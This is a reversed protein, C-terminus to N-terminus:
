GVSAHTGGGGLLQECVSSRQRVFASQQSGLSAADVVAAARGRDNVLTAVRLSASVRSTAASFICAVCTSTSRCSTASASSPTPMSTPSRAPIRSRQWTFTWKTASHSFWPSACRCSITRRRSVRARAIRWRRRRVGLVVEGGALAELEQRAWDPVPLLGSGEDFYLGDDRRVVRGRWFNMPPSGLFGAVFRNAPRHYIELAGGAQQILGDKMVVVRDGLTMAEEQDHTVYVTTANLSMHLQKIEARM